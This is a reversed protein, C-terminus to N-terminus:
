SPMRRDKRGGDEMGLTKSHRAVIRQAAAEITERGAKALQRLQAYAADETLGRADLLTVARLVTQREALRARLDAIEAALSRRAEFAQRAILLASFVGNDGVPKLLQADAGQTLAPLVM